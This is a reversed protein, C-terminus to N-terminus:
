LELLKLEPIRKFHAINNTLIPENNTIAISATMIDALDLIKGRSKLDEFIEAAKKSSSLNFNYIKLNSLFANFRDLSDSKFNIFGRFVEFTNISTTSIDKKNKQLDNIKNLIVKDNKLFEIIIDSDLCVM